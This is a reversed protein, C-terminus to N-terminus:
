LVVSAGCGHETSEEQTGKVVLRRSLTQLLLVSSWVSQYGLCFRGDLCFIRQPSCSCVLAVATQIAGTTVLVTRFSEIESWSSAKLVRSWVPSALM